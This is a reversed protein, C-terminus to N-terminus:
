ILLSCKFHKVLYVWWFSHCYFTCLACAPIVVLILMSIIFCLCFSFLRNGFEGTKRQFCYKARRKESIVLFCSLVFAVLLPNYKIGKNERINCPLSTKFFFTLNIMQLWSCCWSCSSSQQRKSQSWSSFTIQCSDSLRHACLQVWLGCYCLCSAKQSMRSGKM